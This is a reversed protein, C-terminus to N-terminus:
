SKVHCMLGNLILYFEYLEIIQNFFGILRLIGVTSIFVWNNERKKIKIKKIEGKGM